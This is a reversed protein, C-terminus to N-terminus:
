LNTMNSSISNESFEEGPPQLTAGSVLAIIQRTNAHTVSMAVQYADRLSWNFAAFVSIAQNPLQALRLLIEPESRQKGTPLLTM